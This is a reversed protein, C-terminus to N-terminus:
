LSRVVAVLSVGHHKRALSVGVTTGRQRDGRPTFSMRCCKSSSTSKDELQSLWPGDTPFPGKATM